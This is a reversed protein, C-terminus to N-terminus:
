GAVSHRACQSGIRCCGELLEAVAAPSVRFSMERSEDENEMMLLMFRDDWDELYMKYIDGPELGNERCLACFAPTWRAYAYLKGDWPTHFTLGNRFADKLGVEVPTETPAHPMAFSEVTRFHNAPFCALLDLAPRDARKMM